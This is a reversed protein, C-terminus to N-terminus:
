PSEAGGDIDALLRMATAANAPYFAEISLEALTIDIPTGFTSVTSFFALEEEGVQLRLPLVIEAERGPASMTILVKAPV